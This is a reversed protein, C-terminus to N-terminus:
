EPLNNPSPVNLTSVFQRMKDLDEHTLSEFQIGSQWSSLFGSSGNQIKANRIVRCRIRDTYFQPGDLNFLQLHFARPELETPSAYAFAIGGLSIDLIKGGVPLGDPQILVAYASSSIPIRKHKRRDLMTERSSPTHSHTEAGTFAFVTDITRGFPIGHCPITSVKWTYNCLM